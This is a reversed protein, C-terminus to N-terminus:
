QEKKKPNYAKYFDERMIEFMHRDYIKGDLLRAGRKFYGVERGNFKSCLRKYNKMIPNGNYCHFEIKDLNYKEFIDIIANGLDNGFLMSNDTFNVAGFGYACNCSSDLKYSIYGILKGESDISAFDRDWYECALNFEGRGRGSYYFQYQIDYQIKAMNKIIEEKYLSANVLM